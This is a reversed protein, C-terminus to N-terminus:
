PSPSRESTHGVASQQRLLAGEHPKEGESAQPLPFRGVGPKGSGATCRRCAKEAEQRTVGGSVRGAKNRAPLAKPTKGESTKGGVRGVSGQPRGDRRSTATPRSLQFVIVTRAQRRGSSEPALLVPRRASDTGIDETRNEGPGSLGSENRM